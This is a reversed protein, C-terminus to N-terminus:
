KIFGSLLQKAPYQSSKAGVIVNNQFTYSPTFSGSLSREKGTADGKVGYGKEDRVTINNQYVFGPSPDGHLTM